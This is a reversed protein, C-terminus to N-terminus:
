HERRIRVCQPNKRDRCNSINFELRKYIRVPPSPTKSLPVFGMYKMQYEKRMDKKRKQRDETFKINERLLQEMHAVQPATIAKPIYKEEVSEYKPIMQAKEKM